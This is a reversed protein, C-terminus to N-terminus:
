QSMSFDLRIKKTKQPAEIHWDRTTDIPSQYDGMGNFRCFDKFLKKAEVRKSKDKVFM